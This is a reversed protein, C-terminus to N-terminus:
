RGQANTQAISNAQLGGPTTPTLGQLANADGVAGNEDTVALRNAETGGPTTIPMDSTGDTKQLEEKVADYQGEMHNLADASIPTQGGPGPQWGGPYYPQYPM